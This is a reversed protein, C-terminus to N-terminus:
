RCVPLDRVERTYDEILHGLVENKMRVGVQDLGNEKVQKPLLFRQAIRLKEDLVYGSCDIVECRDLLPASITSLTNATSVFLVRSLDIPM